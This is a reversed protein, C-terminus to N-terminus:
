PKYNRLLHFNKKLYKLRIFKDGEFDEQSFSHDMYAKYLNVMGSKLSYALKFSPLLTNLKDFKVRYNRPDYGVEGTYKISAAPVLEQVIDAVDKVQFNEHNDGINVAQDHIIDRPCEAFAVFARAIDACHVLPRWPTGDSMIRIDGKAVACGLLNNAVLDIRLMPSYGYATANRLYAPSFSDDALESLGKEAAIKSVAYASVPNLPCEEDLDMQDAKGYMSCSSAYLFRRVGAKKAKRALDVSGKGNIEETIGPALDGMPDNSLAALHMVCDYGELQETTIARFDMAFEHDPYTLSDWECGNFLGLDCGTVLHGAKKLYVVLHCGIYGLHGTLFINM